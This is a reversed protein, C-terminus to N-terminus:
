NLSTADRRALNPGAMIVITVAVAVWLAAWIWWLLIQDDANFMGWAFAATNNSAHMLMPLLLSRGTNLWMWTVFIAHM